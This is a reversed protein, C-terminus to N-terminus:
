FNSPRDKKPLSLAFAPRFPFSRATKRIIGPRQIGRPPTIRAPCTLSRGEERSKGYKAQQESHPSHYDKEV